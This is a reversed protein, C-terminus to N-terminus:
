AAGLGPYRAGHVQAVREVVAELVGGRALAVPPPPPPPVQATLAALVAHTGEFLGRPSYGGELVFAVRGACCSEALARVLAAMAAFGAGSV